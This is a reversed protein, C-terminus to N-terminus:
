EEEEEEEEEPPEPTAPAESAEFLPAQYGKIGGHSYLPDVPGIRWAMGIADFLDGEEIGSKHDALIFRSLGTSLGAPNQVNADPGKREHSIRVRFVHQAETGFPNPIMGGFGDSILPVRYVIITTPNEDIKKKIGDREQALNSWRM